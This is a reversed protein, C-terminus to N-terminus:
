IVKYLDTTIEVFDPSCNELIDGPNTTVVNSSICKGRFSGNENTSICKVITEYEHHKFLYRKGIIKKMNQIHYMWVGGLATLGLCLGFGIATAIVMGLVLVGFDDEPNNVLLKIFKKM